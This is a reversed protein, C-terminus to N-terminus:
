KSKLIFITTSVKLKEIMAFGHDEPQVIDESLAVVINSYGNEQLVVSSSAASIFLLISIISKCNINM